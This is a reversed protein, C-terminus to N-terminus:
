GPRFETWEPEPKIIPLSDGGKFSMGLTIVDKLKKYRLYHEYSYYKWHTGNIEAVAALLKEDSPIYNPPLNPTEMVPPVVAQKGTGHYDGVKPIEKNTMKEEMLAAVRYIEALQSLLRDVGVKTHVKVCDKWSDYGKESAMEEKLEDFTKM